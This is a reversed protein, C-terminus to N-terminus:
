GDQESGILDLAAALDETFSYVLMEDESSRIAAELKAAATSTDSFGYSGATGHLRHALDRLSQLAQPSPLEAALGRVEAAQLRARTAYAARASALRDERGSM